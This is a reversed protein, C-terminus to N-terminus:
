RAYRGYGGGGGGMMMRGLEPPVKQDAQKLIRILERTCKSNKSSFFSIATGKHGARGCRGIRHVYSEMEQPFDFNVVMHIDKVDLGRSAVDTAVLFLSRGEKFDYLVRDRESQAQPDAHTVDLLIGKNRYESSPANILAGPRIVIDMSLNRERAVLQHAPITAFPPLQPRGVIPMAEAPAHGHAPAFCRGRPPCDCDCGAHPTQGGGDGTINRRTCNGLDKSAQVLKLFLDAVAVADHLLQLKLDEKNNTATMDDDESTTVTGVAMPEAEDDRQRRPPSVGTMVTIGHASVGLGKGLGELGCPEGQVDALILRLEDEDMGIAAVLLDADDVEQICFTQLTGTINKSGSLSWVLESALSRTKMKGANEKEVAMAAAVRVQFVSLLLGADLLAVRNLHKSKLDLANKVNNFLALVLKTEPFGDVAFTEM